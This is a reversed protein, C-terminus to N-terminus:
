LPYFVPVYKEFFADRTILAQSTERAFAAILFDALIRERRKGGSKLFDKWWSGSLHLVEKTFPKLRIGVMALTQDQTKPSEFLPALEAYVLPCLILQGQALAEELVKKSSSGHVPDALLVDLIVNTDVSFIM